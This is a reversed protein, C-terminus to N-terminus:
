EVEGDTVRLSVGAEESIPTPHEIDQTIKKQEKKSKKKEKKKKKTKRKDVL